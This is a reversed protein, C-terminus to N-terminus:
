SDFWVVLRESVVQLPVLPQEVRVVLTEKQPLRHVRRRCTYCWPARLQLHTRQETILRASILARSYSTLTLAVSDDDATTYVCYCCILDAATVPAARTATSTCDIIYIILSWMYILFSVFFRCFLVVLVVVSLLRCFYRSLSM